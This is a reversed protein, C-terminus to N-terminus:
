LGDEKRSPWTDLGTSALKREVSELAWRTMRKEDWNLSEPIRPRKAVILLTESKKRHKRRTIGM